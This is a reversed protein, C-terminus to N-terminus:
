AGVSLIRPNAAAVAEYGLGLRAMAQPRVNYILVDASAALRLLAERGAPQKLDLVLSRKSRNAHLFIGGM